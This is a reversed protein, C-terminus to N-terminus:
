KKRYTKFEELWENDNNQIFQEIREVLDKNGIFIPTRQHLDHPEVDLINGIGDSAYGGAQEAIFGLAQAEYTLRIKGNPHEGGLQSHPYLYVGGKLLNRHFDGVFTGTYRLSLKPSDDSDGQLWSVAKQIGTTWDYFSGHNASYYEPKEPVTINEHTLVFEGITPDLTFGHVGLGTTYVMMTSSGYIIYGAAVLRQGSQLVDAMTAQPQHTFKRHISFITGVGVNVDINSSGDMPDYLLIYRSNGRKQPVDLLDSHEESAMASHAVQM